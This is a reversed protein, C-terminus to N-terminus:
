ANINQGAATFRENPPKQPAVKIMPDPRPDNSVAAFGYMALSYSEGKVWRNM